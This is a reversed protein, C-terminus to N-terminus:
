KEQRRFVGLKAPKTEWVMNAGAPPEFLEASPEKLMISSLKLTTANLPDDVVVPYFNLSPAVTVRTGKANPLRVFAEVGSISATDVREVAAMSLTVRPRYGTQPLELPRVRWVDTDPTLSFLAKRAISVILISRAGPRAIPTSEDRTSGNSSRSISGTAVVENNTTVSYVAEFPVWEAPGSLTMGQNPRRSSFTWVTVSIGAALCAVSVFFVIRRLTM